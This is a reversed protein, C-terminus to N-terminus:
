GYGRVKAQPTNRIRKSPGLAARIARVRALPNGGVLAASRTVASGPHQAAPRRIPEPEGFLRLQEGIAPPPTRPDACGCATDAAWRAALEAAEAATLDTRHADGAPLSSTDGRAAGHLLGRCRCRCRGGRANECATARARTLPKM